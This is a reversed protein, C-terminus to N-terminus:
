DYRTDQLLKLSATQKVERKDDLDSTGFSIYRPVGKAHGDNTGRRNEKNDDLDLNSGVEAPKEEEEKGIEHWWNTGDMRDALGADKLFYFDLFEEWM